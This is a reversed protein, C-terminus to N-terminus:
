SKGFRKLGLSITADDDAPILTNEIIVAGQEGEFKRRGPKAAAEEVESSKILDIILEPAGGCCGAPSITYLLVDNRGKKEMHKRLDESYEIKM